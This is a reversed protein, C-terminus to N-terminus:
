WVSFSNIIAKWCAPSDILQQPAGRGSHRSGYGGDELMKPPIPRIEFEPEQGGQVIVTAVGNM